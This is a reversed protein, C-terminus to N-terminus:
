EYTPNLAAGGSYGSEVKEVGNVESFVAEMCWFCGGGLTAVEKRGASETGSLRPSM